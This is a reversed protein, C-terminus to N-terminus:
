KLNGWRERNGGTVLNPINELTETDKLRMLLEWNGLRLAQSNSGRKEEIRM